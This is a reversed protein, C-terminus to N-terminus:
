RGSREEAADVAALDRQDDLAPHKPEPWKGSATILMGGTLETRAAEAMARMLASSFQETRTSHSFRVGEWMASLRRNLRRLETRQNLVKARLVINEAAYNSSYRVESELQAQLRTVNARLEPLEARELMTKIEEKSMKEAGM